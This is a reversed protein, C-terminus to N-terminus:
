ELDTSELSFDWAHPTLTPPMAGQLTFTNLVGPRGIGAPTGEIILTAATFPEQYHTQGATQTANRRIACRVEFPGLTLHTTELRCRVIGSGPVFENHIDDELMCAKTFDTALANQRRLGVTFFPSSVATRCQYRMAVTVAQGHDVRECKSGQGDELWVETIMIPYLDAAEASAGAIVPKAQDKRMYDVYSRLVSAVDGQEKLQGHDLWMARTAVMEVAQPHHSVFLMPIGDDIMSRIKKFSENQFTLDGVALVEDVIMVDPKLHVAVSFGLRVLMGSSYHKVPMDLFDGIAAFGVIDDFVKDIQRTTLGYVASNIYVNERGTLQPHFGAGLAILAQLRGRIEVRGMTPGYIGSLVSFLTSKGAGNHGVVGICEGQRLEFSINQLAWFESRRLPPMSIPQPAQNVVDSVREYLHESRYKSPLFAARSIEVLGYYMAMKMSRSFKKSVNQCSIVPESSKQVMM